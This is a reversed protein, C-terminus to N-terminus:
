QQQQNISALQQGGNFTSTANNQQQEDTVLIDRKSSKNRLRRGYKPASMPRGRQFEEITQITTNGTGVFSM